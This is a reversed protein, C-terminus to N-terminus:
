LAFALLSALALVVLTWFSTQASFASNFTTNVRLNQSPQSVGFSNVSRINVVYSTGPQLGNQTYTYTTVARSSASNAVPLYGVITKGGYEPYTTIQYSLINALGTYAPSSFTITYSTNTVAGPTNPNYSLSTPAAATATQTQVPVFPKTSSPLASYTGVNNNSDVGAVAVYYSTQPMITYVIQTCTAIMGGTQYGNIPTYQASGVQQLQLLGPQNQLTYGAVNTSAVV